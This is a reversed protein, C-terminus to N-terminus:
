CEKDKGKELGGGGGYGVVMARGGEVSYWLQRTINLARGQAKEASGAL